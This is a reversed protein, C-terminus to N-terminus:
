QESKLWMAVRSVWFCHLHKMKRGCALASYARGQSYRIANFAQGFLGSCPNQLLGNVAEGIGDVLQPGAQLGTPPCGLGAQVADGPLERLLQGPSGIVRAHFATGLGTSGASPLDAACVTGTEGFQQHQM